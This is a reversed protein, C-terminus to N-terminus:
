RQQEKYLYVTMDNPHYDHRMVVWPSLTRCFDMLEYPNMSFDNEDLNDSLSSLSNFALGKNCMSFMQRIMAQAYENGGSIRKAFIGSAIVYDYKPLDKDEIINLTQFCNNGFKKNAADILSATIDVGCYKIELGANNAWELFDGLGCGVDLLSAGKVIGIESLIKFRLFQSERSGWDLAKFSLGHQRVLDDYIKINERDEEQWIKQNSDSAM